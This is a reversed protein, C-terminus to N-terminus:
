RRTDKGQGCNLEIGDLHKVNACDDLEGTQCSVTNPIWLRIPGGKDEPLWDDDMRYILMTTHKVLKLPVSAHFNDAECHFTIYDATEDPVVLDLLGELRLASGQWKDSLQSIDLIQHKSAVDCLGQFSLSSPNKVLGTINLVQESM